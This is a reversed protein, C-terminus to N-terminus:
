TCTHPRVGADTCLEIFLVGSELLM